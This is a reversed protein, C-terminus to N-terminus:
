KEIKGPNLKINERQSRSNLLKNKYTYGQKKIFPMLTYPKKMAVCEPEIGKTEIQLARM